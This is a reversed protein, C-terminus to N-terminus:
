LSGERWFKKARQWIGRPLDRDAVALALLVIGLLTLTQQLAVNATNFLLSRAVLEDMAVPSLPTPPLFVARSVASAVLAEVRALALLLVGWMLFSMRRDGTQRRRRAAFVSALILILAELLSLWEVIAWLPPYTM